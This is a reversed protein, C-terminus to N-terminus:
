GKAVIRKLEAIPDIEPTAAHSRDGSAERDTSYDADMAMRTATDLGVRKGTMRAITLAVASWEKREAPSDAHRELLRAESYADPGLLASLITAKAEIRGASERRRRLWSLM